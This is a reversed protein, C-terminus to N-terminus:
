WGWRRGRGRGQPPCPPTSPQFSSRSSAPSALSFLFQVFVVHFWVASSSLSLVCFHRFDVSMSKLFANFNNTYFLSMGSFTLLIKTIRTKHCSLLVVKIIGSICFLLLTNSKILLTLGTPSINHTQPDGYVLRPRNATQIERLQRSKMLLISFQSRWLRSSNGTTSQFFSALM